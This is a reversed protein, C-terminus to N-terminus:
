ERIVSNAQRLIDDSIDLNIANATILNISLFFEPTEVPTEAVSRGRLILDAMRAGQRGMDYLDPAYAVLAGYETGPASYPFQREIAVSAVETLTAVDYTRESLTFIADVNEPINGAMTVAEEPNHIEALVLEVGLDTAVENVANLKTLSVPDDPNYPFFVREITPDVEILIQLRRGENASNRAASAVGTVNGDPNVFDQVLGASVPDSVALFLVPTETEATVAKAAACGSTAICLILDVDGDVLAQAPASIADPSFGAPAEAAMYTITEGEVYGLESMRDKFGEVPTGVSFPDYIGITFNDPEPSQCATILLIFLVILLGTLSHAYIGKWNKNAIMVKNM